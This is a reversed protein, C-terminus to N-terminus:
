HYNLSAFYNELSNPDPYGESGLVTFHSSVLKSFINPKGYNILNEHFVVSVAISFFPSVNLYLCSSLGSV